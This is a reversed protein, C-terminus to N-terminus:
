GLVTLLFKYTVSLNEENIVEMWVFHSYHIRVFLYSYVYSQIFSYIFSYGFPHISPSFECFLGNFDTDFTTLPINRYEHRWKLTYRKFCDYRSHVIYGLYAHFYMLDLSIKSIFIYFIFVLPLTFSFKNWKFLWQLM